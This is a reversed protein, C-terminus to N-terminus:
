RIYYLIDTICVCIVIYRNCCIQLLIYCRGDHLVHNTHRYIVYYVFIIMSHMYHIHYESLDSQVVVVHVGPKHTWRWVTLPLQDRKNLIGFAKSNMCPYVYYKRQIYCAYM